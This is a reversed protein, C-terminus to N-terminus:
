GHGMSAHGHVGFWDALWDSMLHIEARQDEVIDRALAAVERHGDGGAMVLHQSSMVAVMHHGVMDELFTRDLADGSLDSLDRMMPHYPAPGADPYWRALWRQMTRIQRTQSEVILEGLERMEARDSRALEAAAVVAEEHHAVMGTLFDAESEALQTDMHGHSGSSAAVPPRDPGDRAEVAVFVGGVAVALVAILAVAVREM